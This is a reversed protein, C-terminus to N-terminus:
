QAQRIAAAAAEEWAEQINEPLEAWPPLTAGDVLSRGGAKRCYGEYAAEGFESM